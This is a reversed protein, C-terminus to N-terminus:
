IQRVQKHKCTNIHSDEPTHQVPIAMPKNYQRTLGPLCRWHHTFFKNKDEIENIHCYLRFQHVALM